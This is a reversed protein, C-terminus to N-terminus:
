HLGDGLRTKYIGVRLLLLIVSKSVNSNRHYSSVNHNGKPLVWDLAQKQSLLFLRHVNRICKALFGLSSQLASTLIKSFVLHETSIKRCTSNNQIFCLGFILKKQTIISFYVTLFRFASPTKVFVSSTVSPRHLLFTSLM